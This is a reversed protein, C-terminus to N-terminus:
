SYRMRTGHEVSLRIEEPSLQDPFYVGSIHADHLSVGELNCTHMDLGRLDTARFYSNSFDLGAVNLGQLDLNRFDTDTFDVSEGSALIANVEDVKGERLLHYMPNNQNTDKGIDM